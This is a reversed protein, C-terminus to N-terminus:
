TKKVPMRSINRPCAGLQQEIQFDSCTKRDSQVCPDVSISSSSEPKHKYSRPFWSDGGNEGSHVRKPPRDFGSRVRSFKSRGGDRNRLRDQAPREVCVCGCRRRDGFWNGAANGARVHQASTNSIPILLLPLCSPFSLVSQSSLDLFCPFPSYTYFRQWKKVHNLM